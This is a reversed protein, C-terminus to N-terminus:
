IKIEINKNRESIINLYEEFQKGTMSLPNFRGVIDGNKNRFEYAVAKSQNSQTITGVSNLDVKYGRPIGNISSKMLLINNETLAFYYYRKIFFAYPGFLLSLVGLLDALWIYKVNTKIAAILFIIFGTFVSLFAILRIITGTIGWGGLQTKGRIKYEFVPDEIKEM